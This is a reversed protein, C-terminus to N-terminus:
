GLLSGERYYLYKEIDYDRTEEYVDKIFELLDHRIQKANVIGNKPVEVEFYVEDDEEIMKGGRQEWDGIDVFEYKVLHAPYYQAFYEELHKGVKFGDWDYVRADIDVGIENEPMQYYDM